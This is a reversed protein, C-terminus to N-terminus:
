VGGNVLSRSKQIQEALWQDIESEIWVSASGLKAPAPFKRQRVQEYIWARSMQVKTKLQPLRLGKIPLNIVRFEPAAQNVTEINCQM